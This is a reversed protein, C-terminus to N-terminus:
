RFLGKEELRLLVQSDRASIRQTLGKRRKKGRGILDQLLDGGTEGSDSSPPNKIAELTTNTPVENPLLKATSTIPYMTAEDEPNTAALQAPDEVDPFTYRYPDDQVWARLLSYTSAHSPFADM